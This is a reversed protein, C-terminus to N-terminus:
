RGRRSLVATINVGAGSAVAQLTDGLSLPIGNVSDIPTLNDDNPVNVDPVVKTADSAIGGAPVVHVAVTCPAANTNALFVSKLLLPEAVTLLTGIVIPIEQPGVRGEQQNGQIFYPM